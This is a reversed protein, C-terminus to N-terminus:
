AARGPGAQDTVTSGATASGSPRGAGVGGAPDGGAPDGSGCGALLIGTLVAILL